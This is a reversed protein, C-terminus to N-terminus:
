NKHYRQNMLKNNSAVILNIIVQKEVSIVFLINKKKNYKKTFKTPKNNKDTQKDKVKKYPGYIKRKKKAIIKIISKGKKIGGLILQYNSIVLNSVFNM